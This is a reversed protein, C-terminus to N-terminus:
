WDELEKAGVAGKYWDKASDGFQIINGRSVMGIVLMGDPKKVFVLAEDTSDIEKKIRDRIKQIEEQAHPDEKNITGEMNERDM